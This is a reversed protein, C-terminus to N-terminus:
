VPDFKSILWTGNVKTLTVLVSSATMAPDPRDTSSTSQNLFLLVVAHDPQMESVASQVVAASTKVGKQKAAPEVIQQTFQTYYSLFDGTLHTKAASFDRDLSEPSYSLLAVTGDSAATVAARQAADGIQRDVRYQYWYLGAALGLAAVLLTAAALPVWSAACWHVARRFVGVPEEGSSEVDNVDAKAAVEESPEVEVDQEDTM